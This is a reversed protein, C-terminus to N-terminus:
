KMKKFFFPVLMHVKSLLSWMSSAMTDMKALASSVAEKIGQADAKAGCVIPLRITSAELAKIAGSLSSSHNNEIDSWEELYSIQGKLIGFLKLQQKQLQLKSRKFSVNDCLASIDKWASHLAKEAACSRALTAADAHANLCRWQLHRNDLLRLRHAEEIKDEGKNARRVATAFSIISPANVLARAEERGDLGDRRSPSTELLTASMPGDLFPRRSTSIPNHLGSEPLRRLRSNTEQWFRTQTPISPPATDADALGSHETAADADPTAGADGTSISSRLLRVAALISEKRHLSCDLSRALADAAGKPKAALGGRQPPPQPRENEAEGRRRRTPRPGAAPQPRRPPAARPTEYVFSEGQFSVSLSRMRMTAAAATAHPPHRTASCLPSSVHRSSSTPGPKGRRPTSCATASNPTHAAAPALPRRSPHRPDQAATAAMSRARVPRSGEEGRRARPSARTCAHISSCKVRSSCCLRLIAM